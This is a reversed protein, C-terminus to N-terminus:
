SRSTPSRSEVFAPIHHFVEIAFAEGSIRMRHPSIGFTWFLLILLCFGEVVILPAVDVAVGPIVLCAGSIIASTAAIMSGASRSYFCNRQFGFHASARDMRQYHEPHRRAAALIATVVAKLHADAEDPSAREQEADLWKFEGLRLITSRAIEKERNSITSNSWRLLQTTPAGGWATFLAAQKPQAIDRMWQGVPYGVAFWGAVIATLAQWSHAMPVLTALLAIAPAVLLMGPLTRAHLEYPSLLKLLPEM